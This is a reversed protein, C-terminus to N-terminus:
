AKLYKMLIEFLSRLSAPKALFDDMGAAFCRDREEKMVNATLAIVTTRTMPEMTKEKKRIERTAQYGDIDPMECDMLILDFKREFVKSLAERGNNAVEYPCNLM